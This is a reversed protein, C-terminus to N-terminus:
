AIGAGTELAIPALYFEPVRISSTLAILIPPLLLVPSDALSPNGTVNITCASTSWASSISERYTCHSRRPLPMQIEVSYQIFNLLLNLGSSGQENGVTYGHELQSRLIIETIIPGVIRV